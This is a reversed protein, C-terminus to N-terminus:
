TPAVVYTHLLNMTTYCMASAGNYCKQAYFTDLRHLPYYWLTAENNVYCISFTSQPHMHSHWLIVQTHVKVACSLRWINEVSFYSSITRHHNHNSWSAQFYISHLYCYGKQHVCSESLQYLIIITSYDKWTTCHSPLHISPVMTFLNGNFPITHCHDLTPICTWTSCQDTKCM